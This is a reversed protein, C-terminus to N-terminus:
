GVPGSMPLKDQCASAAAAVRPDSQDLSHLVAFPESAKPDPVDVGQKRMCSTFRTLADLFEQTQPDATDGFAGSQYERCPGQLAAELERRDAPSLQAFGGHGATDPVDVGQERLCQNLKVSAADQENETSPSASGSSEPSPTAATTTDSGGCSALAATSAVLALFISRM